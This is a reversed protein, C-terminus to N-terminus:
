GGLPTNIPTDLGHQLSQLSTSARDARDVGMVVSVGDHIPFRRVETSRSTWKM